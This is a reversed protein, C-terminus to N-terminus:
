EDWHPDSWDETEICFCDHEFSLSLYDNRHGFAKNWIRQLESPDAKSVQDIISQRVEEITRTKESM